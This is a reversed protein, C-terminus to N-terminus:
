RQKKGRSVRKYSCVYGPIDRGHVACYEPSEGRYGYSKYKTCGEVKCYKNRYLVECDETKHISCYRYGDKDKYRPYRNCTKIDCTAHYVVYDIDDLKHRKCHTKIGNIAYYAIRNCGSVICQVNKVCRPLGMTIGHYACYRKDDTKYGYKRSRINCGIADCLKKCKKGDYLEIDYVIDLVKDLVLPPEPVILISDM